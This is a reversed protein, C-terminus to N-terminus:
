EVEPDIIDKLTKRIEEEKVLDARIKEGEPWPLASELYRLREELRNQRYLLRSVVRLM